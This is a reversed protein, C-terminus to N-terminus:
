KEIVPKSTSELAKKDKKEISPQEKEKSSQEKSTLMLLKESAVKKAM